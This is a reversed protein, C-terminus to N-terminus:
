WTGITIIVYTVVPQLTPVNARRITYRAWICCLWDSVRHSQRSAQRIHHPTPWRNCNHLHLACDLPSIIIRNKHLLMSNASWNGSLYRAFTRPISYSHGSVDCIGESRSPFVVPGRIWRPVSHVGRNQIGWGWCHHSAANDHFNRAMLPFTSLRMPVGARVLARWSPIM